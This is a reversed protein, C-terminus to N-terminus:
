RWARLRLSRLQTVMGDTTNGTYFGTALYSNEDLM